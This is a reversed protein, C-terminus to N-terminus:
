YVTQKCVTYCAQREKDKCSRAHLIKYLHMSEIIVQERIDSNFSYMSQIRAKQANSNSSEKKTNQIM